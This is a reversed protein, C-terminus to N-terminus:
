VNIFWQSIDGYRTKRRESKLKKGGGGTRNGPRKLIHPCKHQSWMQQTDM